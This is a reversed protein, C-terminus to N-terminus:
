SFYPLFESFVTDNVQNIVPPNAQGILSKRSTSTVMIQFKGSALDILEASSDDL